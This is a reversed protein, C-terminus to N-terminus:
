FVRIIYYYYADVSKINTDIKQCDPLKRVAEQSSQLLKRTATECSEALKREAKQSQCSETLKYNQIKETLILYM